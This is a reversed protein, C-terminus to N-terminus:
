SIVKRLTECVYELDDPLLKPHVPISFVQRAAKETEILPARRLGQMDKYLPLLHVPTEYFIRAEINKSRLKEVIKNRKGANAGRVRVTYVYWSHKRGDPERPLQLKGFVSLNETLYEANARRKELFSQLKELQVVGIAAVIESMRFNHGLRTVWYPRKEGHNRVERLAQELDDDSTTVMGGEGTTMNKGAYFSFCTMDGISGVFRGNYSGGHAQAADDIVLIGHQRATEVIPDMDAPLGYLHVPIVAKTKRSIIKEISESTTSYTDADIDAFVPKAGTMLIPGVTAAFTLSPVIIEDGAKVDAAMLAAHLAATGSSLAVAHKTGVYKAFNREFELVKPGMGSKETIIGGKLVNVVADIEERGLSPENIRIM